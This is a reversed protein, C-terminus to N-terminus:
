AEFRLDIRESKPDQHPYIEETYSSGDKLQILPSLHLLRNEEGEGALVSLVVVAVQIQM